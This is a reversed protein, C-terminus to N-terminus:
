RRAATRLRRRDDPMRETVGHRDLLELLPVAVRRTTRLAQRAESVTFPQALATLATAAQETSGPLLVVGEAVRLLAGARVAAALERPGLGLEALRAADPATFPHAGLDNRLRGVAEAVAPPLLAHDDLRCVRGDRVALPPTVLAHVLSREAVGLARRVVEVPPGPELPHDRVWDTVLGPLRSLLAAWSQEDAVWDGVVPSATVAVGMRELDTRRIVGRRRLEAREDPREDLEALM